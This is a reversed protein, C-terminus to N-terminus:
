RGERYPEGAGYLKLVRRLSNALDTDSQAEALHLAHQATQMANSFDGAEAYAAALTDLIHADNGKTLGQAREALQVAQAGNRLSAETCTALLWALNNLTEVSDPASKLVKRYQLIAEDFRGEKALAMGLEFSAEQDGPKLELAKRFAGAADGRGIQMLATGLYKNAQADDPSIELGKKFQVVAEEARGQQLLAAGLSFHAEAYDPRIRFAERYHTMAEETQGQQLLIAGLGYHAEAFDPRIRFAERYHSMAEEPHGQKALAIGLGYHVKAHSPDLWLAARYHAIAEETRGQKFLSGGLNNHAISNDPTCELAHTWLAINDRWYSTQHFAVASLACLVVVAVSGAVLRLRRRPGIWDALAWTGAIALGIQPLYTYRDARALSGSQILGIVPVLMGLYWFWGVPLYPHKKGLVLVGATLAVLLTLALMADSLPIQGGPHPYFVALDLPWVMQGLYAVYSVLANSIRAFVPLAESSVLAPNDIHLTAVSIAAALALLPLKEAMLRLLLAFGQRTGKATSELRGLPWYDLLLLLFPLTVLMSKCMLGLAFFLLVTLYRALNRPARAYRVYAGLTLMFFIGSLVDKRETIWAVSEVRLPHIAFGAAVVASRWFAGTMQRLVLFLLIAVGAQLLVNTLHHGGAWLGFVQCDLMHSLTTLPVWHGIQSHTFAWAM